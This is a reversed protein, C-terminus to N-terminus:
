GPRNLLEEVAIKIAVLDRVCAAGPDRVLVDTVSLPYQETGRRLAHIQQRAARVGADDNPLHEFLRGACELDYSGDARMLVRIREPLYVRGRLPQLAHGWTWATTLIRSRRGVNALFLRLADQQREDPRHGLRLRVLAGDRDVILLDDLQADRAQATDSRGTSSLTPSSLTPSSLNASKLKASSLGGSTKSSVKSPLLLAHARTGRGAARWAGLLARCPALLPGDGPIETPLPMASLHDFLGQLDSFERLSGADGHEYVLFHGAHELLTRSGASRQRRGPQSLLEALQLGADPPEGPLALCRPTLQEREIEREIEVIAHTLDKLGRYIRTSVEGWTNLAVREVSWARSDTVMLLERHARPPTLLAETVQGSTALLERLERLVIPVHSHEAGVTTQDQSGWLQNLLAWCLVRILSSDQILVVGDDTGFSWHDGVCSLHLSCEALRRRLDANLVPVKGPWDLTRAALEAELLRLDRDAAFRHPMADTWQRLLTHSYDLQRDIEAHEELLSRVDRPAFNRQRPWGWEQRLASLQTDQWTGANPWDAKRMLCLRALELRRTDGRGLLYREIRRYLMLYPDLLDSDACGAYIQRKLELALPGETQLAYSELLLLKLLSKYPAAMAKHLHWLTAGLYEEDPIVAVAGLDLYEHGALAPALTDYRAEDEPPILWWVPAKGDLLVATRYFEDLLLRDQTSGCDDGALMSRNGARLEQPDVLFARLDLGQSMCWASLHVAADAMTPDDTTPTIIWLDLDSDPGHGITGASGMAYIAAIVGTPAAAHLRQPLSDFAARAPAELLSRLRQIRAANLARFRSETPSRAVSLM